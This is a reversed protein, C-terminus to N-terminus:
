KLSIKEIVKSSSNARTDPIPVSLSLVIRARRVAMVTTRVMLTTPIMSTEARSMRGATVASCSARLKLPAMSIAAQTENIATMPPIKMESIRFRGVPAVITM